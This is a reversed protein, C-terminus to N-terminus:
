KLIADNFTLLLIVSSTYLLLYHSGLRQDRYTSFKAGLKLYINVTGM